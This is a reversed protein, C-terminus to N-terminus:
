LSLATFVASVFAVGLVSARGLATSRQAASESVPYIILDQAYPRGEPPQVGCRIAVYSERNQVILPKRVVTKGDDSELAVEYLGANVAVVSQVPLEESRETSVGEQDQIQLTAKEPGRYTDIVAIQANLLNSFIHSEFAVATSLASHRYIVLMLVSDSSPLDSVVFMGAKADGFKFDIKDGAKLQPEFERCTKYAMPTTTLVAQPPGLIVIDLPTSYPYANCVRLRHRPEAKKALLTGFVSRAHAQGGHGVAAVAAENAIIGAGSACRAYM